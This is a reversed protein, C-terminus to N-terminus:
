AGSMPETDGLAAGKRGLRAVEPWYRSAITPDGEMLLRESPIYGVVVDAMHGNNRAWYIDLTQTDDAMRLHEDVVQFKLPKPSRALDDQFDPARAPPEPYAEDVGSRRVDVGLQQARGGLRVLRAEDPRLVM